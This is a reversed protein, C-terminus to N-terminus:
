HINGNIISAVLDFTKLVIPAGKMNSPSNSLMSISGHGEHCSKLGLPEPSILVGIDDAPM